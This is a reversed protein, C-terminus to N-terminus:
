QSENLAAQRSDGPRLGLGSMVSSENTLAVGAPRGVGVRRDGEGFPPNAAAATISAPSSVGVATAACPVGYVNVRIASEGGSGATAPALQTPTFPAPVTTKTAPPTTHCPLPLVSTGTM